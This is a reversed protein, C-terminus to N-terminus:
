EPVAEFNASFVDARYVSISGNEEVLWSGFNVELASTQGKTPLLLLGTSSVSVPVVGYMTHEKYDKVFDPWESRPQGNFQWADVPQPIRQYQPM